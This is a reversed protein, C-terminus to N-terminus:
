RGLRSIEKRKPCDPHPAIGGSSVVWLYGDHEVTYIKSSMGPSSRFVTESIPLETKETEAKSAKYIKVVGVGLSGTFVALCLAIITTKITTKM